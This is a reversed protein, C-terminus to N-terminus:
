GHESEALAPEAGTDRVTVREYPLRLGSESDFLQIDRADISVDLADGAARRVGDVVNAVVTEGGLTGHLLRASGMEEAFEFGGRLAGRASGVRVAEARFGLTVPGDGVSPWRQRDYALRQGDGLTVLGAASDVVGSLLNLGPTGIFGAVYTTGPRHYIENPTGVQEVGGKSMVVIRDALTMAEIQDHTVFLTTTGLRQHLKRIEVRMAVRLRADLNSLPEDYLFVKPERIMARGMAVRQRQGGSLQGPKRELFETLGLLAAVKSSRTWRARRQPM